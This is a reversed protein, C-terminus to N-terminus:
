ATAKKQERAARKGMMVGYQYADLIALCLDDNNHAIAGLVALKEQSPVTQKEIIELVNKM